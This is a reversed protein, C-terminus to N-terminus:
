LYMSGIMVSFWACAVRLRRKREFGCWWSGVPQVWTLEDHLLRLQHFIRCVISLGAIGCGACSMVARVGTSGGVLV